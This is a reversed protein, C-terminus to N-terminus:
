TWTGATLTKGSGPTGHLLIVLGKGKQKVQDRADSPFNHSTVLAKLVDRREEKLVLNDMANKNWDIEGLSDIYFRCWEKRAVSYGHAFPPCM